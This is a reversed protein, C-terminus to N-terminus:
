SAWCSPNGGSVEHCAACFAPQADPGLTARVLQAVAEGSLPAPSWRRAVPDSGMAAPGSAAGPEEPRLALVLLV